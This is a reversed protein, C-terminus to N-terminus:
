LKWFKGELDYLVVQLCFNPLAKAVLRLLQKQEEEYFMPLINVAEQFGLEQKLFTLGADLLVCTPDGSATTLTAGSCYWQGNHLKARKERSKRRSPMSLTKLIDLVKLAVGKVESELVTHDPEPQFDLNPLNIEEPSVDSLNHIDDIYLMSKDGDTRMSLMIEWGLSSWVTPGKAIYYHGAELIRM